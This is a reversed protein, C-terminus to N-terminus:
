SCSEQKAGYAWCGGLWFEFFIQRIFVYFGINPALAFAVGSGSPGPSRESNTIVTSRVACPVTGMESWSNLEQRVKGMVTFAVPPFGVDLFGWGGQAQHPATLKTSAERCTEGPRGPLALHCQPLPSTPGVNMFIKIKIHIGIAVM